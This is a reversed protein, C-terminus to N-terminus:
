LEGERSVKYEKKDKFDFVRNIYYIGNWVVM